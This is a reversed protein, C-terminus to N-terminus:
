VSAHSEKTATKGTFAEWRAVAVDVFAPSLEMAYCHRGTMEAAILATGSGSFPEYILGGPKTHWLIPRRILEVPKTTPHKGGAGEENGETSAIEWVARESAPPTRKPKHGQPWGVMVVEYDWLFWSYTLVARTKKWIVVQHSLLGVERWAQWIVETRMMGFCQYVAVDPTLAVDLAVKLFDRYFGVAAAHDLYVDWHKEDHGVRVGNVIGGNAESAPHVGGEYDVLYPPDTAMLGAREGAMLRQVQAADTSDGCLLRHKGLLWLDGPKSIPEAPPEPVEDPDTLGGSAFDLALSNARAV